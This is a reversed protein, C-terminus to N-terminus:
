RNGIGIKIVFADQGTYTFAQFQAVAQLCTGGIGADGQRLHVFQGPVTPFRVIQSFRSGYPHQSLRVFVKARQLFQQHVSQLPHGSVVFMGHSQAKGIFGDMREHLRCQGADGYLCHSGIFQHRQNEFGSLVPYLYHRQQILCVGGAVTM